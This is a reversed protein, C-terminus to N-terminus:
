PEPTEVSPHLNLTLRTSQKMPCSKYAFLEPEFSLKMVDYPILSYLTYYSINPIISFSISVSIVCTGSSRYPEESAIFAVTFTMGIDHREGEAEHFRPGLDHRQWKALHVCHVSFFVLDIKRTSM